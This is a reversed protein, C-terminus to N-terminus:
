RILLWPPFPVLLVSEVVADSIPLTARRLHFKEEVSARKVSRCVSAQATKEAFVDAAKRHDLLGPQHSFCFCVHEIAFLM